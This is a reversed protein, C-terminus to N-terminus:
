SYLSTYFYRFIFFKTYNTYNHLQKFISNKLINVCINNKALKIKLKTVYIRLVELNQIIKKIFLYLKNGSYKKGLIICLCTRFKMFNNWLM